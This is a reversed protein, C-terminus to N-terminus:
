TSRCRSARSGSRRGARQTIGNETEFKLRFLLYSPAYLGKRGVFLTGARPLRDEARDTSASSISKHMFIDDLSQQHHDGHQQTHREDNIRDHIHCFAVGNVGHDAGIGGFRLDFLGSFFETQVARQELAVEAIDLTHQRAIQTRGVHGLAVDHLGIQLPKRVRQLEGGDRHKPARPTQVARITPIGSPIM